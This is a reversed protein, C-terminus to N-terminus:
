SQVTGAMAGSTCAGARLVCYYNELLDAMAADWGFAESRVRAARGLSTRLLPAKALRAVCDTFAAVNEPAALFGSVGDVVLSRSGTANACVAPLGSSMAELTVIGFTETLSPNLFIDSSAYARALDDGDLYGTFVADPLRKEMWAREPGDGVVLARCPLGQDRLADIVDSYCALGKELVLRGVFVVVVEDDLLGNSRRWAMDRRRPHFLAHDVGRSWLKVGSLLGDQELVAAVSDSPVYVEECLGYFHRLYRRVLGVLWQLGYYRVYTDYRTHFSAVAPIGMKRAFRLAAYGLIDPASLHILTPSFAKLRKRAAQPLGLGLRYEGRRGPLSVSPVSVLTGAYDFAPTEATPAFVLVEVGQRELYAVLHNLAVAAGDTIYNYNGSFLAVRLAQPELSGAPHSPHREIQASPELM